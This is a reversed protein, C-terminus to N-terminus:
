ANGGSGVWRILTKIDPKVRAMADRRVRWPHGEHENEAIVAALNEVHHTRILTGLNVKAMGIEIARRLVDEPIGTTGHMVLPVASVAQLKELLDLRINPKGKYFGHANGIGVALMDIGSEKSMREVEGPDALNKPEPQSGDPGLRLLEGVEAEVSVDMPKARAVVERTIKLNEEIPLKSGDFMVSTFGADLAQWVHDSEKGHDLHVAVPVSAQEAWHRMVRGAYEIGQYETNGAYAALIIPSREEEAVEVVARVLDYDGGSTNVCPVAYCGERAKQVLPASPTLSM